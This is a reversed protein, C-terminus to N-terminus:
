PPLPVTTGSKPSRSNQRPAPMPLNQLDKLAEKAAAISVPLNNFRSYALVRKLGGELERVNSRIHKAIFFAVEEDLM